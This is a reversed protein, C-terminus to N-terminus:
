VYYKEFPPIVGSDIGSGVPDLVILPEEEQGRRTDILECEEVEKVREKEKVEITAGERSTESTMNVYPSHVINLLETL